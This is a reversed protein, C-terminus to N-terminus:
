INYISISVEFDTRINNGAGRDSLLADSILHGAVDASRSSNSEFGGKELTYRNNFDYMGLCRYSYDEDLITYASANPLQFSLTFSCFM